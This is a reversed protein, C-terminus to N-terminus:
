SRLFHNAKKIYYVSAYNKFFNQAKKLSIIKDFEGLFVEIKINKLEKIKEWNFTFMEYLEEETCSYDIEIGNLDMKWKGNEMKWESIGAKTLFTKIYSLKDKKFANINVDIFKQNVYFFAPSLLQLKDVRKDTNLVYELAKQAGFSFGAVVFESEELYDNFFAKDNKLCFGSFYKM